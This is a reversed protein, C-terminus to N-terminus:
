GGDDAVGEDAVGEDAVGEDAVSGGGCFERDRECDTVEVSALGALSTSRPTSTSRM